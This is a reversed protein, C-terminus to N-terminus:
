KKWDLKLNLVAWLIFTLINFALTIKGIVDIAAGLDSKV